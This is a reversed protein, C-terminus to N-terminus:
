WSSSGPTRKKNGYTPTQSHCNPCLIRLNEIRNDTHDGNIHDLHLAIPKGQWEVLSCISCQSILRGEKILRIRLTSSPCSSGQQLIEDLTKKQRDKIHVRSKGTLHSLDIKWLRAAKKFTRFSDGRNSVGLHQAIEAFNISKKVAEEFQEKTWSRILISPRAALHSTDISLDQCYQKIRKRSEPASRLGIKELVDKWCTSTAVSERLQEDTYSRM